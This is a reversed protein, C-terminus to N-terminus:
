KLHSSIGMINEDIYKKIFEDNIFEKGEVKTKSIISKLNLKLFERQYLDSIPKYTYHWPEYEFGPRNSDDDYVIYFGFRKSNKDMWKKLSNFIGGEEYKKSILLDKENEFNKDIIDIETGWHHRSTGPITSFRIIEKIATPGDLSFENTFKKYKNNWIMQQRYFDRFGSVLKIIIGDKEAADKMKIFASYTEKELLITDSVIRSDDMGILIETNIEQTHMLKNALLLM